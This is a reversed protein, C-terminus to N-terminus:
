KLYKEAETYLADIKNNYEELTIQDSLFLYICENIDQSIELIKEIKEKITM